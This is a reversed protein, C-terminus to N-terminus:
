RNKKKPKVPPKNADPNPVSIPTTPTADENRPANNPNSGPPGDKAKKWDKVEQVLRKRRAKLTDMEVDLQKIQFLIVLTDRIPEEITITRVKIINGASDKLLRSSEKVQAFAVAAFLTFTLFFITKKM